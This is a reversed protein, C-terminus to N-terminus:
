SVSLVFRKAVEGEVEVQYHGAALAPLPVDLLGEEDSITEFTFQLSGSQDYLKFLGPTFSEPGLDIAILSTENASIALTQQADNRLSEYFYTNQPQHWPAPVEAQAESLRMATKLSRHQEVETQLASDKLLQMEFAELEADALAGALYQNIKDANMEM